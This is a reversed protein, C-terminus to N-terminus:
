PTERSWMGAKSQRAQREAERYVHMLEHRWREDAEALGARLLAESLNGGRADIVHALLRDFGDRPRHSELQLTIMAGQCLGRMLQAAEDAWPEAPVDHRAVEPCDIGWLRVRTTLEGSLRDIAAIEVTDGDIVQTVLFSQLHYASLDDGAPVLLWGRHDAYIVAVLTILLLASVWTHRRRRLLSRVVRGSLM